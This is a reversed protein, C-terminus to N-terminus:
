KRPVTDEDKTKASRNKGEFQTHNKKERKRKRIILLRETVGPKDIFRALAM